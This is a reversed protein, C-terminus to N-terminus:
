PTLFNAVRSGGQLIPELWNKPKPKSIKMKHTNNQGSIHERVVHMCHRHFDSSPMPDVPVPPVSTTLQWPHQSSFGARRMAVLLLAPMLSLPLHAPQMSGAIIDLTAEAM